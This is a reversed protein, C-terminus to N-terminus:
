QHATFIRANRASCSQLPGATKKTLEYGWHRGNPRAMIAAAIAVLARV